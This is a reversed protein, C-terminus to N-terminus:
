SSLVTSRACNYESLTTINAFILYVNVLDGCVTKEDVVIEESGCVTKDDVINKKKNCFTIRYVSFCARFLFIRVM